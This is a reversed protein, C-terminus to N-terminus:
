PLFATAIRFSDRLNHAMRILNTFLSREDLKCENNELEHQNMLPNKLSILSRSDSCIIRDPALKFGMLSRM